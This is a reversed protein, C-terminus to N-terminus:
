QVNDIQKRLEVIDYNVQRKQVEERLKDLDVGFSDRLWERSIQIKEKLAAVGDIGDKDEVPYAFVPIAIRRGKDNLLFGNADVPRNKADHYKEPNEADQTYPAEGRYFENTVKNSFVKVTDGNRTVYDM